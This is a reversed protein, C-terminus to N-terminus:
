QKTTTPTHQKTGRRRRTIITITSIAVYIYIYVYMHMCMYVCIYVHLHLYISIYIYIYINYIYIMNTQIYIYLYTYACIYIYVYRQWPCQCCYDCCTPVLAAGAVRSTYNERHSITHITHAQWLDVLRVRVYIITIIIMILLLLLLLLLIYIYIYVCIYINPDAPSQAANSLTLYAAQSSINRVQLSHVMKCAHMSSMFLVGLTPVGGSFAQVAEIVLFGEFYSCPASPCCGFGFQSDVHFYHDGHICVDYIYIYIYTYVCVTYSSYLYLRTANCSRAM